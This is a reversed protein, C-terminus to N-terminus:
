DDAPFSRGQLNPRFVDPEVVVQMVQGSWAGDDAHHSTSHYVMESVGPESLIDRFIQGPANCSPGALRCHLHANTVAQGGQHVSAGVVLGAFTATEARPDLM